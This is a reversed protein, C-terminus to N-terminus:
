GLPPEPAGERKTAAGERRIQDRVKATHDVLQRRAANFADRIAVHLEEHAQHEPPDRRVVLERGPLTMDIRVHALNGTRGHPHPTEVMVRCRLLQDSFSDLQSIKDDVLEREADTPDINRWTVQPDHQM